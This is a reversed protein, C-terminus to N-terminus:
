ERLEYLALEDIQRNAALIQTVGGVQKVAIQSPGTGKDIQETEWRGNEWSIALLEMAQRRYGLLFRNKGAALGGWIVHGFDIGYEQEPVYAGMQKRYIIAKNGHFPEITALELVGDGDADCLAMDSVEHDLIQEVCWDEGSTPISFAFVGETGSVFYAGDAGWDKEYWLGHHKTIGRYLERLEFPEGLREPDLRGTYVSGPQSWDQQFEKHRCLTGGFFFLNGNREFLDFRHLYPFPMIEKVRWTNDRYEVLNLTCDQAAFVPLFKQTAFYTDRKGPVPVINMTGGPGDWLLSREGDITAEARGPGETCGIYVQKGETEGICPAYLKEIRNLVTKKIQM